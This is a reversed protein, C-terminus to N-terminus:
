KSDDNGDLRTALEQRHESLSSLARSLGSDGVLFQVEANDARGDLFDSLDELLQGGAKALPLSLQTDLEPSSRFLVHYIADETLEIKGLEVQFFHDVFGGRLYGRVFALSQTWVEAQALKLGEKIRSDLANWLPELKDREPSIIEEVYQTLVGICRSKSEQLLSDFGSDLLGLLYDRDAQTAKNSGFPLKRPRVLELVELAANRYLLGTDQAIRLREQEVDEDVFRFMCERALKAATRLAARFAISQHNASAVADHASDLLTHLRRNLAQKKITRAQDFFRAELEDRMADWGSDADGAIAKRASIPICAEVRDGLESDVYALVEGVQDKSLQDVKNLVGLVRVGTERISDLALKETSKGAQNVTFVWIVADARKLFSRAVAEHEPLISNLGPTDIINVRELIDIPMLIEVHQIRRAEDDDITGLAEFLKSGAIDRSTNDRYIVRGAKSRGYKVINITATTPTVGTPAVDTGVFANVFSSKGSSFEGMVAVLLPQDYESLAQNALQRLPLLAPEQGCLRSLASALDYWSSEPLLKVGLQSSQCASLLTKGRTSDPKERLALSLFHQTLDYNEVSLELAARALFTEYNAGNELAHEYTARAAEIQSNSALELGRATLADSDGANSALVHNAMEVGGPIDGHALTLRLARKATDHHSAANPQRTLARRFSTMAADNDGLLDHAQGLKSYIEGVSFNPAAQRLAIQLALKANEGNELELYANAIGMNAQFSLQGDRSSTSDGTNDPDSQLM